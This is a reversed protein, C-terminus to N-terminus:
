HSYTISMTYTVGSTGGIDDGDVTMSLMLTSADLKVINATEGDVSLTTEDQNSTWTFAESQDDAPDCKTAGEDFSGTKDTAYIELDDKDCDEYQAYIDSIIMGFFDIAPDITAATTKWPAQCLLDTNSKPGPDSSDDSCSTILLATGVLFLLFIKKM